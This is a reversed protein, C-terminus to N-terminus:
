AEVSVRKLWAAYESEDIASAALAMTREVVEEETAQFSLGNTELFLAACMFGTRKNGDIFPHSKMIGTAYAAAMSFLDSNGYSFLNQPRQLASELLGDERVGELGGFRELVAAHLAHCEQLSIWNPESM